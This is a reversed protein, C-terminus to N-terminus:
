DNALDEMLLALTTDLSTVGGRDHTTLRVEVVEYVNSWEVHHNLRECHMAVASMFAFAHVFDVFRYTRGLSDSSVSWAPLEKSFADLEETTLLHREM